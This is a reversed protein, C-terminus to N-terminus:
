ISPGRIFCRILCVMQWKLYLTHFKENICIGIAALALYPKGSKGYIIIFAHDSFGHLNNKTTMRDCFKNERM